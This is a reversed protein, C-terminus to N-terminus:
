SDDALPLGVEFTTHAADPVFRFFGGNREALQRVIALGLGTGRGAPKTTFFPEALRARHEPAVGPGGDVCRIVVRDAEVESELRVWPEGEGAADAANNLLNLVAHLLEASRGSVALGPPPAVVTLAVGASAFRARCLAEADRFLAALSVAAPPDQRADRSLTRLARTIAAARGATARIAAVGRRLDDLDPTAADLEMAALESETLIVQLPSNIEHAIGGAFIALSAYRADREREEAQRLLVRETVDETTFLAGGVAGDLTRWPRVDWRLWRDGGKAGEVREEDAAVREGALARRLAEGWRTAVEPLVAELLEGVVGDAGVDHHRVWQPSVAVFRLERDFMAVGVPLNAVLEELQREQRALVQRARERETVDSHTGTFRIPRGDPDRGSIRGRDLIYVWSGNAHRMRHINEYRPTRGEIHARIDAYCAQIDDPHVRSSWTTLEMPTTVPDLGLMECWRRDFQVTDDRLDWDWIGLDSGELALRLREVLADAPLTDIYERLSTM